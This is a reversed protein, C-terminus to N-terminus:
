GTVHQRSIISFVQGGPAAFYFNATAPYHIIPYGAARVAEQLVFPDEARIELWAGRRADDEDLARSHFEVSVSGGGPFRFALIPGLSPPTPLVIPDGCGLVSFCRVLPERFEPRALFHSRDGLSINGPAAAISAGAAAFATVTAGTIICNRRTIGHEM